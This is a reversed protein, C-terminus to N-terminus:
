RFGGTEGDEKSDVGNPCQCVGKNGAAKFDGKYEAGPEEM